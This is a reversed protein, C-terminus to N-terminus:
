GDEQSGDSVSETDTVRDGPLEDQQTRSFRRERKELAQEAKKHQRARKKQERERKQVSQRRKSSM